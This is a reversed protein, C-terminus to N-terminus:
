RDDEGSRLSDRVTIRGPDVAVVDRWSVEDGRDSPILRKVALMGFRHVIGRSGYLLADVKWKQDAREASSRPDRRVRVDFVHGLKDGSETVVRSGLLESLRM